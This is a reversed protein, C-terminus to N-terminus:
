LSEEPLEEFTYRFTSLSESAMAAFVSIKRVAESAVQTFVEASVSNPNYLVGPIGQDGCSALAAEM